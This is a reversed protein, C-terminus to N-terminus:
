LDFGLRATGRRAVGLRATGCVFRCVFGHGAEGLQALSRWAGGPLATFLNIFLDLGRRAVGQWVTCQGVPGLRAM